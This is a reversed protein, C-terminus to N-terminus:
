SAPGPVAAAGDSPLEITCASQGTCVDRIADGWLYWVLVGLCVVFCTGVGLLVRKRAHPHPDHHIPNKAEVSKQVEEHELMVVYTYRVCWAVCLRAPRLVELQTYSVNKYMTQLSLSIFGMGIFYATAVLM